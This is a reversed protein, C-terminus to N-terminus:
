TLEEYEDRIRKYLTPIISDGSGLGNNTIHEYYITDYRLIADDTDVFEFFALAKKVVEKRADLPVGDRWKWENDGERDIYRISPYPTPQNTLREYEYDDFAAVMARIVPHALNGTDRMYESLSATCSLPHPYNRYYYDRIQRIRADTLPLECIALMTKEGDMVTFKRCNVFEPISQPEIDFGLANIPVSEATLPTEIIIASTQAVDCWAFKCKAASIYSKGAEQESLNYGPEAKASQAAASALSVEPIDKVKEYYGIPVKKIKVITGEEYAEIANNSMSYGNYGAM